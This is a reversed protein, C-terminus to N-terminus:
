SPLACAGRYAPVLPSSESLDPTLRQALFRSKVFVSHNVGAVQLEIKPLLTVGGL